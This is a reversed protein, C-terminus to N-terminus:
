RREGAPTKEAGAEFAAAFFARMSEPDKVGPAREIGSSVDVAHPRVARIAAAVNDPRLGGALVIPRAAALDAAATWDVVRGGQAPSRADRGDVLLLADQWEALTDPRRAEELALGRIVPRGIRRAVEARERGHLQVHTLGAATAVKMVDEVSQDVFVGVRAVEPPVGSAIARATEPDICRPSGPWFVFGIAWAGLEVALQADEARTVGCIKVRM